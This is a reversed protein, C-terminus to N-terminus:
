VKSELHKKFKELAMSADKRFKRVMDSLEKSKEKAKDKEKEAEDLKNELEKLECEDSPKVKEMHKLLDAYVKNKAALDIFAEESLTEAKDALKVKTDAIKELVSNLDKNLADQEKKIELLRKENAQIDIDVDRSDSSSVLVTDNKSNETM